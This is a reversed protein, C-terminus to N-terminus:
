KKGTTGLCMFALIRKLTNNKESASNEEDLPLGQSARAEREEQKKKEQSALVSRKLAEYQAAEGEAIRDKAVVGNNVTLALPMGM